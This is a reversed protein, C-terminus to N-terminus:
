LMIVGKHHAKAIFVNSVFPPDEVDKPMRQESSSFNLMLYRRYDM